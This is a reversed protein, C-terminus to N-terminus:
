ASLNIRNIQGDYMSNITQDKNIYDIFTKCAELLRQCTITSIMRGDQAVFAISDKQHLNGSPKCSSGNRHRVEVYINKDSNIAQWFICDIFFRVFYRSKIYDEMPTMFQYMDSIFPSNNGNVPSVYQYQELDLTFPRYNGITEILSPVAMALMHIMVKPLHLFLSELLTNLANSGYSDFDMEQRMKLSVDEVRYNGWVSDKFRTNKAILSTLLYSLGISRKDKLDASEYSKEGCKAKDALDSVFNHIEGFREMVPSSSNYMERLEPRTFSAYFDIFSQAENSERKAMLNIMFYSKKNFQHNGAPALPLNRVIDLCNKSIPGTFDLSVVDYVTHDHELIDELRGLKSTIGYAYANTHFENKAAEDGGEVGVINKPHFGLELYLPIELCKKGPLCLVRMSQREHQTTHKALFQKWKERWLQKTPNDYNAHSGDANEKVEAPIAVEVPSVVKTKGRIKTWATIASITPLSVNYAKACEKRRTKQEEVDDVEAVYERIFDKDTETLEPANM